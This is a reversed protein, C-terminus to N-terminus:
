QEYDREIRNTFSILEKIKTSKAKAIWENLLEPKNQIFIDKFLNVLELIINFLPYQKYFCLFKNEEINKINSVPRFLTKFIDNRKMIIKEKDQEVKSEGITREM